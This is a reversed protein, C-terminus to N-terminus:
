TQSNEAVYGIWMEGTDLALDRESPTRHDNIRDLATSSRRQALTADDMTFDGTYRAPQAPNLRTCLAM